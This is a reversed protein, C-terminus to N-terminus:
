PTMFISTSEGVPEIIQVIGKKQPIKKRLDTKITKLNSTRQAEKIKTEALM